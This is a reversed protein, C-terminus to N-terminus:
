AWAPAAKKRGRTEPKKVEGKEGFTERYVQEATKAAPLPKVIEAGDPTFWKMAICRRASAVPENRWGPPYAVKAHEGLSAVTWGQREYWRKWVDVLREAAAKTKTVRGRGGTWFVHTPRAAM